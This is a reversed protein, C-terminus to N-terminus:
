KMKIGGHTKHKQQQKRKETTKGDKHGGHFIQPCPFFHVMLKPSNKGSKELNLSTDFDSSKKRM